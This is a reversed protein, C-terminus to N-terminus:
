RRFHVGQYTGKERLRKDIENMVVLKKLTWLPAILTDRPADGSLRHIVIEPNLQEIQKTTVEVFEKLTLLHFPEKKYLHALATKEMVHLMHIKVGDVGLTNLHRATALMDDESEGPLGNIIHVVVELGRAKAERVADDFCEIGHGRNIWEASAPHITQLGIELQVPKERNLEELLDFVDDDLADCRTAIAIGIVGEDLRMATEFMPRLTSVPAYTNTNAQFYPMTLAGPWKENLRAKVTEYQSRIDMGRGATFDGSGSPSCYICGGTGKAGDKNPCTFGGDIPVKFVKRGFRKKYTESLTRYRKERNQFDM